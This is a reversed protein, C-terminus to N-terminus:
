PNVGATEKLFKVWDNASEDITKVFMEDHRNFTAIRIEIRAESVGFGSKARIAAKEEASLKAFRERPSLETKAKEWYQSVRTAIQSIEAESIYREALALRETGMTMQAYSLLIRKDPLRQILICPGFSVFDGGNLFFSLKLSRWSGNLAEPLENRDASWATQLFCTFLLAAALLRRSTM